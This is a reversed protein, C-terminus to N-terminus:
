VRRLICLLEVLTRGEKGSSTTDMMEMARSKRVRECCIFREMWLGFEEVSRYERGGGMEM